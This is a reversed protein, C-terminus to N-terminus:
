NAEIHTTPDPLQPILPVHPDVLRTFFGTGLKVLTGANDTAQQSSVLAEFLSLAIGGAVLGRLASM